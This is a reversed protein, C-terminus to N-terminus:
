KAKQIDNALDTQKEAIMVAITVSHCVSYM